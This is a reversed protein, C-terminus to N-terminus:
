NQKQLYNLNLESRNRATLAFGAWFKPHRFRGSSSFLKKTSYTAALIDGKKDSLNQYFEIMFEKTPYDRVAWLTGIVSSAGQVIFGRTLSHIGAGKFFKGKMTNCGSIVVLQSNFPKSMLEVLSIVETRNEQKNYGIIGVLGPNSHEFIGHTAIHLIQSDRTSEKLLFSSSADAGIASYMNKKGSLKQVTSVEPKVNKIKSYKSFVFHPNKEQVNGGAFVAISNYSRNENKVPQSLFESISFTRLINFKNALPLYRSDSVSYNIASFPIHHLVGDPIIVLNRIKHSELINFPILKSFVKSAKFAEWNINEDRDYIKEYEELIATKSPIKILQIDKKSLALLFSNNDSVFYRVILDDASMLKLMNSTGLIKEDANQEKESVSESKSFFHEFADDSKEQMESHNDASALFVSKNAKIWNDFENQEETEDSSFNYIKKEQYLEISYFKELAEIIKDEKKNVNSKLILDVYTEVFTYRAANWAQPSKTVKRIENLIKEAKEFYIKVLDHKSNKGSWEILLRYFEIQHIPYDSSVLETINLMAISEYGFINSLEDILNTIEINSANSIKSKLLVLLSDIKQPTQLRSDQRVDKLLLSAKDNESKLFYVKALELNANVEYYDGKGKLIRSACLLQSLALDVDGKERSIYGLQTLVKGIILEEERVEPCPKEKSKKYDYKDLIRNFYREALEFEGLDRYLFGASFLVGEASSLDLKPLLTIAKALYRRNEAYEGFRKLVTILRVIAVSLESEYSPSKEFIEISKKALIAAQRNENKLNYYFWYQSLVKALTIDSPKKDLESLAYDFILKADEELPMREISREDLGSINRLQKFIAECSNSYIRTSDDNKMRRNSKINRVSEVLNKALNSALQVKELSLETGKEIDSQLRNCLMEIESSIDHGAFLGSSYLLFTVLVSLRLKRIM